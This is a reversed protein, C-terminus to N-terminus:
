DEQWVESAEKRLADMFGDDQINEGTDANPLLKKKLPMPLVNQRM